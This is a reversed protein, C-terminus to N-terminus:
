VTAATHPPDDAPHPDESDSLDTTPDHPEGDPQLPLTRIPDVLLGHFTQYRWLMAGREREMREDDSNDYVPVTHTNRDRSFDQCTAM